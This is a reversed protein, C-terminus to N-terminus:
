FIDEGLPIVPITVTVAAHKTGAVCDLLSDRVFPATFVHDVELSTCLDDPVDGLGILRGTWGDHRIAHLEFLEAPSVADFDVILVQPRPPPDKLLAFVVTRVRRGLQITIKPRPEAGELVSPQTQTLETEIWRSRNPEPAFVLCRIPEGSALEEPSPGRPRLAGTTAPRRPAQRLSGPLNPSLSSSARTLKAPAAGPAVPLATMPGAHLTTRESGRRTRDVPGGGTPSAQPTATPTTTPQATPPTTQM